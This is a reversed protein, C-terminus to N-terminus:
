WPRIKVHVPVLAIQNKRAMRDKHVQLTQTWTLLFGRCGESAVEVAALMDQPL